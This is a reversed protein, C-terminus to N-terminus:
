PKEAIGFNNHATIRLMVFFNKLFFSIKKDKKAKTNDIRFHFAIRM